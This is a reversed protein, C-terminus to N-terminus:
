HSKVEWGNWKEVAEGRRFDEVSWDCVQVGITYVYRGIFRWTQTHVHYDPFIEDSFIKNYFFGHTLFRQPKGLSMNAIFM